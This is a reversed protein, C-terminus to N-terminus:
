RFSYSSMCQLSNPAVKASNLSLHTHKNRQVDFVSNNLLSTIDNFCYHITLVGITQICNNVENQFDWLKHYVTIFVGMLCTRDSFGSCRM